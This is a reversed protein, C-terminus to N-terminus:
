RGQLHGEPVMRQHPVAFVLLRKSELRYYLMHSGYPFSFVGDGVDVRALRQGPFEALLRITDRIGELYKRSQDQGWTEVTYRRIARLDKQADRTLGFGLAM